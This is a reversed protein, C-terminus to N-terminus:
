FGRYIFDKVGSTNLLICSVVIALSCGVAWGMSPKFERLRPQMRTLPITLLAAVALLATPIPPWVVKAGHDLGVMWAFYHVAQSMNRSRFVVFSSIVFLTTMAQALWVPVKQKRKRWVNNTVLALGHMLGFVIFTWAAGHWLGAILMAVITAGMAKPFTLPKMSKAIPTFLYTTIFNSLTIHWRKWFEIVTTSSFPRDFNEPLKIGLMLAVGVAMESYGSFDFYLQFTFAVAGSWAQLISLHDQTFAWDAYEAALGAVIAKRGLGMAFRALGQSLQDSSVAHDEGVQPFFARGRVLPGATILPFFSLFLAHDVFPAPESLKEYCDVLYMIQQITFFSIGLPLVFSPVSITHGTIARLNELAFGTYKFVGLFAVNTVLGVVLWRRRWPSDGAQGMQRVVLWNLVLSFLLAPLTNPSVLAYFLLSAGLLFTAGRRGSVLLHAGVVLPLFAVVFVLSGFTM